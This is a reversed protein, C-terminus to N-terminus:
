TSLMQLARHFKPDRIVSLRLTCSVENMCRDGLQRGCLWDWVLQHHWSTQCCVKGDM